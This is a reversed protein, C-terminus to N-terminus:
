TPKRLSVCHFDEDDGLVTDLAFLQRQLLISTYSRSSAGCMPDPPVHAALPLNLLGGAAQHLQVRIGTRVLCTPLTGCHLVPHRRAYVAVLPHSKPCFPNSVCCHPLYIIIHLQRRTGAYVLKGATLCRTIYRSPPSQMTCAPSPQWRRRRFNYECRGIKTALHCKRSQISIDPPKSM